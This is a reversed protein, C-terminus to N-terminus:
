ESKVIDLGFVYMGLNHIWSNKNVPSACFSKGESADHAKHNGSLNSYIDGGVRLPEGRGRHNKNV